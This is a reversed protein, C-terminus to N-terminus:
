FNHRNQNLQLKKASLIEMKWNWQIIDMKVDMANSELAMVFLAINSKVILVDKLIQMMINEVVLVYLLAIKTSQVGSMHLSM